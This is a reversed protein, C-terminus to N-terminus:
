TMSGARRPFLAIVFALAVVAVYFVSRATKATEEGSGAFGLRAAVVAITAVLGMLGMLVLRSKGGSLRTPGLATFFVFGILAAYFGAQAEVAQVGLTHSFGFLAAVLAALLFVLSAASM